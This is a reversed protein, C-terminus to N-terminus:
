APCVGIRHDNGELKGTAPICGSGAPRDGNPQGPVGDWIDLEPYHGDSILVPESAWCRVAFLVATAAQSRLQMPAVGAAM